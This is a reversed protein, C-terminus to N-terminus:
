LRGTGRDRVYNTWIILYSLIVTLITRLDGTGRYGAEVRFPSHMWAWLGPINLPDKFGYKPPRNVAYIQFM